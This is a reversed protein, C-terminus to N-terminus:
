GNKLIRKNIFKAPNGGVITWPEIDKYVCANAGVVAGRGITVGMHVYADVAVWSDSEIHIPATILEHKVSFVNHSATCLHSGQSVTANKELTIKDVNYCNVKPGIWANEGLVLNWPAWVSASSYVGAKSHIRAGFIRLLLNRWRRFFKTPFPRFLFVYVINWTLRRFRNVISISNVQVNDNM